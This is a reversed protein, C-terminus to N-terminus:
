ETSRKESAAENPKNTEVSATASRDPLEARKEESEGTISRKFERMGAGLNKGLEPLRRAGFLLAAILLLVIWESGGPLFAATHSVM